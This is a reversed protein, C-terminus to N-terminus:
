YPYASGSPRSYQQRKPPPQPTDDDDSLTLDIVDAHSRKTGGPRPMSSGERSAGSSPTPFGLGLGVVDFASSNSRGASGVEVLDDDDVEYADRQPEQDVEDEVPRHAKWEGNPQIDVQDVSKSTNM